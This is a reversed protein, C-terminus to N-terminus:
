QESFARQERGGGDDDGLVVGLPREGVAVTREGAGAGEALAIGHEVEEPQSLEHETARTGPPYGRGTARLGCSPWRGDQAVQKRRECSASDPAVTYLAGTQGGLLGRPISNVRPFLLITM